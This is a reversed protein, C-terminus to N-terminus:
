VKKRLVRELQASKSHLEWAVPFVHIITLDSRDGALEAAQPQM